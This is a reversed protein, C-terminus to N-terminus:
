WSSESINAYTLINLLISLRSSLMIQASRVKYLKTFTNLFIHFRYKARIMNDAHKMDVNEM